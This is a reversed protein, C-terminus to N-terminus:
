STKPISRGKERDEFRGAIPRLHISSCRPSTLPVNEDDYTLTLFSAAEHYELECIMRFAWSRSYDLRCEICKGCPVNVPNNYTVGNYSISKTGTPYIKSTGDYFRFLSLPYNCM